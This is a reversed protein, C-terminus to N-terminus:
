KEFRVPTPREGLSDEHLDLVGTIWHAPVDLLPGDEHLAKAGPAWPTLAFLSRRPNNTPSAPNSGAVVLVWLKHVVPSHSEGFPVEM